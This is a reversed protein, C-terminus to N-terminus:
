KVRKRLLEIAQANGGQEAYKLATWNGQTKRNVDAGRNLLEEVVQGHGKSAAWMLPTRGQTDEANVNAKAALLTRVAELHGSAAAYQLPTARVKEHPTNVDAGAQLLVQIVKSHGHNAAAHIPFMGQDGPQNVAKPDRQLFFRADEVNGAGAAQVLDKTKPTWAPDIEQAKAPGQEPRAPPQPAPKEAAERGCGLVLSLAVAQVLVFVRKM